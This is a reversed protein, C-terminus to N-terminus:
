ISISSGKLQSLYRNQKVLKQSGNACSENKKLPFFSSSSSPKSSFTSKSPQNRVLFFLLHWIWILSFKIRIHIIHVYPLPLLHNQSSYIARSSALGTGHHIFSNEMESERSRSPICNKRSKSPLSFLFM